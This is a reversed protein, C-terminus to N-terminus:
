ALTKFFVSLIKVLLCPIGGKLQVHNSHINIVNTTLQEPIQNKEITFVCIKLANENETLAYDMQLDKLAELQVLLPLEDTHGIQSTATSM